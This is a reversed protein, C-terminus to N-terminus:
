VLYHFDYAVFTMTLHRERVRAKRWGNERMAM